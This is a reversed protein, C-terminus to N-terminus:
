KFYEAQAAVAEAVTDIEQLPVRKSESGISFLAEHGEIAKFTGSIYHYTTLGVIVKKGVWEQFKERLHRPNISDKM